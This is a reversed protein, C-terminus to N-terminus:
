SFHGFWGPFVMTISAAFLPTLQSAFRISIDVYCVVKWQVSIAIILLSSYFIGFGAIAPNSVASEGSFVANEAM